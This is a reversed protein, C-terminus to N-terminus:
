HRIEPSTSLLLLNRTIISELMSAKHWVVSTYLSVAVVGDNLVVAEVTWILFRMILAVCRGFKQGLCDEAEGYSFKVSLCICLYVKYVESKIIKSM